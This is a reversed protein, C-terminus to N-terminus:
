AITRRLRALALLSALLLAAGLAAITWGLEVIGGLRSEVGLAHAVIVAALSAGVYQATRYIGTSAGAGSTPVARHLLLQNGLNNFGNPLGLLAGLVALWWIPTAPSGTLALLAGALVMASAGVILLTRPNWRAGLRTATLTSLAGVGFVPLLLLGTAAPDLGRTAQLWQPLGYFVCYFSSFTAIARLCTLGFQPHVVLLRVAVFPTAARLERWVFLAGVPLLAVFCWWQPDEDLSLLGFMLLVLSAILLLIGPPDILAVVARAGRRAQVADRPVFLLVLAASLALIPLNIWFIGQWGWLLVVFGGVTPGLAATTQGCVAIVGIAGTAREGKLAARQRIVAMAAPFQVSAGLGLLVRVAIMWEASPVFPGAISALLICGLGVLYVRRAGFLDALRGATPSGVAAAIYLASVIWAIAGADGFHEAMPVLAVAIIASNLGLLITGSGLSWPIRAPM